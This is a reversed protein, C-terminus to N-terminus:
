QSLPPSVGHGFWSNRDDAARVHALGLQEVSQGALAQGNNLVGRTDGTVTQIRFTLPAAAHERDDVGATDLRGVIVLDQLEHAKLCLGRNMVRIDDNEDGVQACAHGSRVHVNCGHELAAALRNHQRDILAVLGALGLRLEVLEIVETQTFGEANGCQVAVARAVQEVFCELVERGLFLVVLVLSANANCEDTLGVDAFGAQEVTDETLLADNYGIDGTGGSVAYVSLQVVLVTLKGKNIGCTDATLGLDLLLDLFERDHAREHRDLTGIHADNHDVSGLAHGFLIGLDCALRM